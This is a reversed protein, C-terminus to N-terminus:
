NTNFYLKGNFQKGDLHLVWELSRFGKIKGASTTYNMGKGKAEVVIQKEHRLILHYNAEKNWRFVLPAGARVTVVDKGPFTVAVEMEEKDGLSQRNVSTRHHSLGYGGDQFVYVSLGGILLLCAAISAFSWLRIEKAPKPALPMSVCALEEDAIFISLRRVSDVYARCGKCTELHQQFLTEECAPMKNLLYKEARSQSCPSSDQKKM